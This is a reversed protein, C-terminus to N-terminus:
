RRPQGLDFLYDNHTYTYRTMYLRTRGCYPSMEYRLTGAWSENPYFEKYYSSTEFHPFVFKDTSDIAVIQPGPQYIDPGFYRRRGLNTITLKVTVTSGKWGGGELSIEWDDITITGQAPIEVDYRSITSRFGDLIRSKLKAFPEIGAFASVTMAILAVILFVAVVTGAGIRYARLVSINWVLVGISVALVIWGV